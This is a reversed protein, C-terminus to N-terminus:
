RTYKVQVDFPEVTACNVMELYYSFRRNDIKSKAVTSDTFRRMTNLVAGQSQTAAMVNYGNFQPSLGPKVLKRVLFVHVEEDNDFDNALLSLSLVTARQPLQVQELFSGKSANLDGHNESIPQSPVFGTACVSDGQNNHTSETAPVFTAAPYDIVTGHSGAATVQSIVIGGLAAATVIVVGLPALM